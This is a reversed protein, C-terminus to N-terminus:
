YYFREDFIMNDYDGTVSIENWGRELDISGHNSNQYAFQGDAYPFIGKLVLRKFGKNYKFVKKNTKNTVTIGKGSSSNIIIRGYLGDWRLPINGPNYVKFSKEGNFTYQPPDGGNEWHMGLGFAEVSFNTVTESGTTSLYNIDGTSASSEAFGKPCYLTIQVTGFGANGEHTISFAGSVTCEWRIYPINGFYVYFLEDGNFIRTLDLVTLEFETNNRARINFTITFSKPQVKSDTNISVYKGLSQVSPSWDSSWPSFDYNVHYGLDDLAFKTKDKHEVYVASTM